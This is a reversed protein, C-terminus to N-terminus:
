LADGGLKVALIGIAVVIMETILFGTLTSSFYACLNALIVLFLTIALFANRTEMKKTRQQKTVGIM